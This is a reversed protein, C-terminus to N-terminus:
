CRVYRLLQSLGVLIAVLSIRGQKEFCWTKVSMEFDPFTRGRCLVIDSTQEPGRCETLVTGRTMSEVHSNTVTSSVAVVLMPQTPFVKVM